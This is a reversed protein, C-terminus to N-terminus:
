PTPPCTVVMGPFVLDANGPVPLRDANAAVLRQHYRAVVAIDSRDGGRAAIVEEAVRWLHEGPQVTWCRDASDSPVPGPTTVIAPGPATTTAPPATPRDAESAAGAGSEPRPVPSSTTPDAPSRPSDPVPDRDASRVRTPTEDIVTFPPGASPPPHRPAPDATEDLLEFRPGTGTGTSSPAPPPAEDLLVLAPAGAATPPATGPNPAATATAPVLLTAALGGASGLRLAQRLPAVAIAAAARALVPSCCADALAALGAVVVLYASAVGVGLTAVTVVAELPGVTALWRELTAPDGVPVTTRTTAAVVTLGLAAAGLLTGGPQPRSPRCTTM